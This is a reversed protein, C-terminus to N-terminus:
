AQPNREYMLDRSLDMADVPSDEQVDEIMAIRQERPLTICFDRDYLYLWMPGGKPYSEELGPGIHKLGMERALQERKAWRAADVQKVTAEGKEVVLREGEPTSHDPMVKGQDKALRALAAQVAAENDEAEVPPASNAEIRELRTVIDTLLEELGPM